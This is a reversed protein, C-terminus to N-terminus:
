LSNIMAKIEKKLNEPVDDITKKGKKILDAYIKAM